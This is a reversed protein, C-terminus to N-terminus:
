EKREAGVVQRLEGEAERSIVDALKELDVRVALDEILIREGRDVGDPDAPEDRHGDFPTALGTRIQFKADAALVAAVGRGHVEEVLDSEVVDARRWVPDRDRPQRRRLRRERRPDAISAREDHSSASPEHSDKIARCGDAVVMPGDAM